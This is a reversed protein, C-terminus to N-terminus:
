CRHDPFLESLILDITHIQNKESSRNHLETAQAAQATWSYGGNVQRREWYVSMFGAAPRTELSEDCHGTASNADCSPNGGVSKRPGGWNWAGQLVASWRASFLTQRWRLMCDYPLLRQALYTIMYSFISTFSFQLQCGSLGARGRRSPTWQLPPTLLPLM